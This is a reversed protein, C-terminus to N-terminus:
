LVKEIKEKDINEYNEEGPSLHYAHFALRIEQQNEFYIYKDVAEDYYWFADSPQVSIALELLKQADECTAELQAAKRNTGPIYKSPHFKDGHKPNYIFLRQPSRNKSFWKHLTQVDDVCDVYYAQRDNSSIPIRNPCRLANCNLLIAPNNCKVRLVEGLTDNTVDIGNYSFSQYRGETDDHTDRWDEFGEDKLRASVYRTLNPYEEELEEYENKLLQYPYLMGKINRSDYFRDCTEYKFFHIIAFWRDFFALQKDADIESVSHIYSSSPAYCQDAYERFLVFLSTAM